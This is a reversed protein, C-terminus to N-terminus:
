GGVDDLSSHSKHHNVCQSLNKQSSSANKHADAEHKKRHQLLYEELKKRYFEMMEVFSPDPKIGNPMYTGTRFCQECSSYNGTKEPVQCTDCLGLGKQWIATLRIFKDNEVAPSACM